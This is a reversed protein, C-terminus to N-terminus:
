LHRYVGPVIQAVRTTGFHKKTWKSGQSGLFYAMGWAATADRVSAGM